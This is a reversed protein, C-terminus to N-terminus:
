AMHALMEQRVEFQILGKILYNHIEIICNRGMLLRGNVTHGGAMHPFLLVNPLARFPHDPAPPEPNTVDLCATIRGTQLERILAAEDVLLGRATNILLCGDKMTPINQANLINRCDENAPAHLSLVDCLPIMEDLAMLKVGLREAELPSLYPDAVLIRCRFPALLRITEKGVLSCGVLGVTLGDLRRTGLKNYEGGTWQGAATMANLAWLQKLTTLMLALTTQAVDEAIIPANSTIRRGSTWFSAPVLNRVSGAGHAIFRLGPLQALMEDTFSPTRWCTICADAGELTELMFERTIKEPLAEVPNVDAFTRLFLIDQASFLTEALSREVVIGVKHRKDM